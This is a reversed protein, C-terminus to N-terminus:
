SNVKIHSEIIDALLSKISESNQANKNMLAEGRIRSIWSAAMHPRAVREMRINVGSSKILLINGYSLVTQQIGKVEVNVSEVSTYEIRSSSQKFFGDWITEIVSIDTLLWADMYWDLFAYITYIATIILWAYFVISLPHVLGTFFLLMVIPIGYGFLAVKLMVDKINIWHPTIVYLLTEGKDLYSRFLLRKFFM